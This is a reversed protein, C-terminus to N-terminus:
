GLEHVVYDFLSGYGRTLHLGRAEIERLHDLVLIQLAQEHRALQVTQALLLYDPLAAVTSWPSPSPVTDM